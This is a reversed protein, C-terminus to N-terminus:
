CFHEDFVSGGTLVEQLSTCWSWSCPPSPHDRHVLICTNAPCVKDVAEADALQSTKEMMRPPLDALDQRHRFRLMIDPEFRRGRNQIWELGNNVGNQGAILLRRGLLPVGRLLQPPPQLLLVTIAATVITDPAVHTGLLPLVALCKNWEVMVGPLTELGVETMDVNVETVASSLHRDQHQSPAVGIAREGQGQRGLSGFRDQMAQDLGEVEKLAHRAFDPPVIGLGHYWM